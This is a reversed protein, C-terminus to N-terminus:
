GMSAQGLALKQDDADFLMPYQEAWSRWLEGQRFRERQDVSFPFTGLEHLMLASEILPRGLRPFQFRLDNHHAEVFSKFFADLCRLDWSLPM